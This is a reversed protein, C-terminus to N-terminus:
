PDRGKKLDASKLYGRSHYKKFRLDFVENQRLSQIMRLINSIQGKGANESRKHGRNSGM